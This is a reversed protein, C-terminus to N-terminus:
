ECYMRVCKIPLLQAVEKILYTHTLTKVVNNIYESLMQNSVCTRYTALKSLKDLFDPRAINKLPHIEFYAELSGSTDGSILEDKINTLIEELYIYVKWVKWLM